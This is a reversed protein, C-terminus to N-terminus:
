QIDSNRLSDYNLVNRLEYYRFGLFLMSARAKLFHLLYTHLISKHNESENNYTRVYM